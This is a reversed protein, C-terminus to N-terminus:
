NVAVTLLWQRFHACDSSTNTTVLLSCFLTYAMMETTV